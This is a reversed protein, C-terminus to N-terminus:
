EPIQAHIKDALNGYLYYLTEQSNECDQAYMVEIDRVQELLELAEDLTYDQHPDFLISQDELLQQELETLQFKM